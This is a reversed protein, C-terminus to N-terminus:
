KRVAAVRVCNVYYLVPLNINIQKLYFHLCFFHHVSQFHRLILYLNLQYTAVPVNKWHPQYLFLFEGCQCLDNVKVHQITSIM